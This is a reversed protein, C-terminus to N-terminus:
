GKVGFRLAELKGIQKKLSEIKNARMREAHALAAQETPHWDNGHYHEPLRPGSRVTAMRGDESIEADPRVFIGSTLAYKTVWIKM